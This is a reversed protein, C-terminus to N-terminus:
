FVILTCINLFYTCCYLVFMIDIKYRPMEGKCTYVRMFICVYMYICIYMVYIYYISVNNRKDKSANNVLLMKVVEKYGRYSAKM